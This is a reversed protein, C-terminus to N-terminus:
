AALTGGFPDEEELMAQRAIALKEDKRKSARKLEVAKKKEYVVSGATKEPNKCTRLRRDVERVAEVDIIKAEREVLSEIDKCIKSSTSEPLGKTLGWSIALEPSHTHIGALAIQSPTYIFECDTLRSRRVFDLAKRYIEYLEPPPNPITKVCHSV